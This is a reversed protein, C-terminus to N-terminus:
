SSSPPLPLFPFLPCSLLHCPQCLPVGQSSLVRGSFREGMYVSRVLALDFGVRRCRIPRWGHEGWLPTCPVARLRIWGRPFVPRLCSNLKLKWGRIPQFSQNTPSLSLFFTLIVALELSPAQSHLTKDPNFMLIQSGKLM